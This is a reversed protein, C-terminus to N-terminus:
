TTHECCLGYSRARAPHTILSALSERLVEDSATPLAALSWSLDKVAEQRDSRREYESLAAEYTERLLQAAWARWTEDAGNSM